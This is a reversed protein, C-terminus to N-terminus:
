SSKRPIKSREIYKILAGMCICAYGCMYMSMSIQGNYTISGVPNTNAFYLMYCVFGYRKFRTEFNYMGGIQSSMNTARCM